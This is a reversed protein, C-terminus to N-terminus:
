DLGGKPARARLRELARPTQDITQGVGGDALNFYCVYLCGYRCTKIWNYMADIYEPSDGVGHLQQAQNGKPAVNGFEGICTPKKHRNAFRAQWQLMFQGKIIKQLMQQLTPDTGGWVMGYTDSGIVDVVDDGPYFPLPSPTGSNVCWVISISQGNAAAAKFGKRILPVARRWAAIFLQADQRIPSMNFEWWLRAYVTQTGYKALNKGLSIYVSDRAGSIAQKLLENLNIGADHPILPVGVDIPRDFHDKRWAPVGSEKAWIWDAGAINDWSKRGMWTGLIEQKIGYNELSKGSNGTLARKPTDQKIITSYKRCGQAHPTSIPAYIAMFYFLLYRKM